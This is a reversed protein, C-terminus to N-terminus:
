FKFDSLQLVVQVFLFGFTSVYRFLLLYGLLGLLNYLTVEGGMGLDRVLLSPDQYHCYPHVDNICHMPARDHYFLTTVVGVLSLRLFSLRMLIEQFPVTRVGYGMGLYSLMLIPAM